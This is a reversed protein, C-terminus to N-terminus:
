ILGFGFFYTLFFKKILELRSKEPLYLDFFCKLSVGIMLHFMNIGLVVQKTEPVPGVM